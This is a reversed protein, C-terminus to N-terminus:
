YYYQEGNRNKNIVIELHKNDYKIITHASFYVFILIFFTSMKYKKYKVNRLGKIKQSDRTELKIKIEVWIFTETLSDEEERQWGGSRKM